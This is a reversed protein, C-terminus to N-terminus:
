GLLSAKDFGRFDNWLEGTWKWETQKIRGKVVYYHTFPLDCKRVAELLWPNDRLKRKYVSKLLSRTPIDRERPFDLGVQKANWGYTDKPAKGGSTWWYWFAEVSQFWGVLPLRFPTRAFNSLERGLETKGRSYVNIVKTGDM